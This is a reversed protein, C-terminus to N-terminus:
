RQLREQFQAASDVRECLHIPLRRAHSIRTATITEAILAITRLVKSM